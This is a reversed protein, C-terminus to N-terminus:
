EVINNLYKVPLIKILKSVKVFKLKVNTWLLGTLNVSSKDIFVKDPVDNHEITQKFIRRTARADRQESLMFDLIKGHKDIARYYYIWTWKVKIYTEDMRLSLNSQSKTKQAESTIMQSNKVVWRNLTAHDVKVGHKDMIGELDRYSVANRVYFFMAYFIVEKPFHSGKFNIM